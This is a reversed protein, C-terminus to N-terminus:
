CALFSAKRDDIGKQIFAGAYVSDRKVHFVPSVGPRGEDSSCSVVKFSQLEKYRSASVGVRHCVAAGSRQNAGTEFSMCGDNSIEELIVLFTEIEVLTKVAAFAGSASEVEVSKATGGMLAVDLYDLEEQIMADIGVVLSVDRGAGERRQVMSGACAVDVDHVQKQAPPGVRDCPAKGHKAPPKQTVRWVRNRHFRPFRVDRFKQSQLLPLRQKVRLIPIYQVIHRKPLTM